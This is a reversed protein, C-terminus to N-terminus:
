PRLYMTASTAVQEQAMGIHSGRGKDQHEDAKQDSCCDTSAEECKPAPFTRLPVVHKGCLCLPM